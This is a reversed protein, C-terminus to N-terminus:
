VALLSATRKGHLRSRYPHTESAGVASSDTTSRSRLLTRDGVFIGSGGRDYHLHPYETTPLLGGGRHMAPDVICPSDM